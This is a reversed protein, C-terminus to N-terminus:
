AERAASSATSSRKKVYESTMAAVLASYNLSFQLEDGVCVDGEAVTADVVLYGSSAGVVTLRADLPVIGDVAVDERGVNILARLMLGRDEFEPRHGFADEGREGQPASPKHKLELVEAHLVFADQYTNPWPKRQTTERGLLIAEGIRAHNIRGPTRGAVILELGSSNVGSIWKLELEFRQEIAAALEVLRQMNEESPVVGAFCALNTGLGVIRVGSLAQAEGVFDMIDDAWIGERLDGLDVMLVVEHVRGRRLAAQSLGALVSMESNLSVDISDVVEDVGSLAPVRLLMCPTDIGAAKLRRINELRSDALSSVGGRLMAAAVDPHGCTAKTVGSVTIGHERCLGVITRANHEIKALNITLYPSTM